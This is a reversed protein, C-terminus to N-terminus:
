GASNLQEIFAQLRTRTREDTPGPEDGEIMLVPLDLKERLVSHEIGHFCFTQVYHIIGDLNRRQIERQIDALRHPLPYPYTYTSYQEALSNSQFPMSFQRPTENYVVRVGMSQAVQVLDTIAAPVGTLGLKPGNKDAVRNEAKELFNVLEKNYQDPDCQFDSSDLLWSFNEDGTVRGTSWTLEDLKKLNRRVPDLRERWQEAEDITTGLDECLQQIASHMDQVCPEYPYAFKIVRLGRHRWLEALAEANTCDGRVVAIVTTIKESEAVAYLGRIWSCINRPLGAAEARRLLESRQPHSVFLNNLDVPRYGAAFLVEVPITATLGIRRPEM